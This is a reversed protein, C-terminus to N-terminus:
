AILAAATIGRSTIDASNEASPIHRWTATPALKKIQAVRNNVFVNVPKNSYLWCLAIESDTWMHLSLKKYVKAYTALLKNALKAGIASQKPTTITARCRKAPLKFKVAVLTTHAGQQLYANAGGSMNSADTFVHLNMPQNHQLSHWRPIKIENVAQRLQANIHLWAAVHEKSVPTDWDYDQEWLLSLLYVAPMILPSLLGLPDFYSATVQLITRKKPAAHNQRITPNKYALVDTTTNWMIGLVSEEVKDELKGAGHLFKNLVTNDTTFKCFDFGGDALIDIAAKILKLVKSTTAAGDL